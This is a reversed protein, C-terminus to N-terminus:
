GSAWLFKLAFALPHSDAWALGCQMQSFYLLCEVDDAAHGNIFVVDDGYRAVFQFALICYRVADHQLGVVAASLVQLADRLFKCEFIVLHYSAFCMAPGIGMPIGKVQRYIDTHSLRLQHHNSAVPEPCPQSSSPPM